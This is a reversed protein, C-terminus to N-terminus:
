RLGPGPIRSDPPEFSLHVHGHGAPRTRAIDDLRGRLTDVWGFVYRNSCETCTACFVETDDSPWPRARHGVPEYLISNHVDDNPQILHGIHHELPCLLALQAGLLPMGADTM